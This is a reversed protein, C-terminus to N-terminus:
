QQRQGTSGTDETIIKSQFRFVVFNVFIKRRSPQCVLNGPLLLLLSLLLPPLPLPLPLLLLLVFAALNNAALSNAIKRWVSKAIQTRNKFRQRRCHTGIHSDTM